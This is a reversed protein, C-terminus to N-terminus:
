WGTVLLHQVVLATIVQIALAPKQWRAPLLACLILLWPVFPLWIREVEAKSMLSVDAAIICLIAATGLTNVVRHQGAAATGFLSPRKDRVNTIWCAICAGLIPGASFCLAAVDGWWWYSAPRVAAIGDQYRQHLAPYSSWLSFGALQVGGVVFLAAGATWCLPLYSRAAILVGLALIALLPLGYSMEVCAGFLVGAIGSWIVSRRAAAVSLAALGWAAVCSFVADASVAEWVAAPTFVLFPAVLRAAREADLVRLTTMTALPITSALLTVVIGVVINAGLGLRVLLIFFLLAGPPHGAVHTPWAHSVLPIRAAFTHLTQSLNTTARAASLFQSTDPYSQRGSRSDVLALSALWGLSSLWTVGMLRPWTLAQSLRGAYLVALVALPM